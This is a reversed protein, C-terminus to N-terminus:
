TVAHGRTSCSLPQICTVLHVRQTGELPNHSRSSPALRVGRGRQTM